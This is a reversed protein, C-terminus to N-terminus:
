EYRLTRAPDVGSARLSPISAAVIVCLLTLVIAGIFSIADLPSTQFLQARIQRACFAAIIIGLAIGAGAQLLAIRIIGLFISARTAGLALRIGIEHFRREVSFAVVGYIGALAVLVAIGTLAALLLFSARAAAADDRVAQEFSQVQPIRYQPFARSVLAAVEAAYPANDANTRFVVKFAPWPWNYPFYAMPKPSATLSNRTDGVVGVIRQSGFNGFDTNITRGLAPANGFYKKAFARNVVIANSSHLENQAFTRGAIVPIRMVSFYEPSILTIESMAQTDRRSPKPTGPRWFGTMLDFDKLFPTQM